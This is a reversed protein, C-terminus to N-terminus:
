TNFTSRQKELWELSMAWIRNHSKLNEPVELSRIIDTKELLALLSRETKLCMPDIPEKPAQDVTTDDVVSAAAAVPVVTHKLFVHHVKLREKRWKQGATTDDVVSAAAAVPVVTHKPFVLHVKRRAV